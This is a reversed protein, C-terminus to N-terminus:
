KKNSIATKWQFFDCRFENVAQSAKAQHRSGAGSANSKSSAAYAPVDTETDQDDSGTTGGSKASGVSGSAPKTRMGDFNVASSVGVPRQCLYFHRGKTPGSKKVTWEKCPEGHHCVPIAPPQFLQKWASAAQSGSQTAPSAGTAMKAAASDAPRQAQLDLSSDSKSPTQPAESDPSQTSAQRAELPTTPTSPRVLFASLKMQGKNATAAVKGRKPASAVAISSSPASRKGLTSDANTPLSLQQQPQQPQEAAESVSDAQSPKAFFAHLKTIRFESWYCSCLRPPHYQDKDDSGASATEAFIECASDLQFEAMVPAHDSGMVDALIGAETLSGVLGSSVLVFDLRTGFNSERANILTNWCSFAKEATPHRHRFTDTLPGRPALLADLWQRAPTAQFDAIGLDRMSRAPDCHDIPRHIVNLDGVLVVQRGQNLLADIRLRVAKHFRMKFALREESADNPFYANILVFQGHDTVVLRGESDLDQMESLSFHDRLCEHITDSSNNTSSTSGNIATSPSPIRWLGSFGEEADVVALHSRVYTVVGSYGQRKKSFSFFAHFGPVNAMDADIQRRAVKFEQLCVIDANLSDIIGGFSRHAAWAPYSKLTKAGQLM